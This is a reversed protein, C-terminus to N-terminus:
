GLNVRKFRMGMRCKMAKDHKINWNNWFSEISGFSDTTHINDLDCNKCKYEKRQRPSGSKRAM